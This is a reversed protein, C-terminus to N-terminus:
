QRKRKISTRLAKLLNQNNKEVNLSANTNHIRKFLLVEPIIAMPIKLDSARIFWDFDEAATLQSDFNGISKFLSKHAVLTGPIRAVTDRNLLEKRFGIPLPYGPELFWIIKAITYQIEPRDLLYNIQINLKNPTWIDDQDLFAIFQCNASDIGLNYASATGKGDGIMYRVQPYSKAIKASNDTSRDDVVIIEDPQYTQALVSDIAQALFRDCNKVTIIVSVTPDEM